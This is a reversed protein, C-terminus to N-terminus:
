SNKFAKLAPLARGRFDFLTTNSVVNPGGVQWGVGPAPIMVPDWYLDGLVAGDRVSKLGAFLASLFDHQGQPTEPYPVPGNDMLQGEVGDHTVPNWNVGTEMVMIKKGFRASIRDFFGLVTPIDKQTWYPYYSAGIVDYPVGQRDLEGFYWEYKGDNGADDLHLIVQTSPSVEKVARYGAKLFRGLKAFPDSQGYSKGYPFLIGGQIENGLSVFQPTTGQAKMRRLVRKTYDHVYSELATVAQEEPLATVQRWDKPIDQIAGNSWYDSYHFTLQIRMGCAAARRALDLMDNEDQYGDPLHDDPYGIRPHDPGTDNYLRLRVLNVGNDRMIDLPDRRRGDADRYVGGSDEVWNLMTIDGGKLFRHQAAAPTAPSAALLLVMTTLCAIIARPHRM